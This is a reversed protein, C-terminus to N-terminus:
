GNGNEKGNEAARKDEAKMTRLAAKEFGKAAACIDDIYVVRDPDVGSYRKFIKGGGGVAYLKMFDPDYGYQSLTDFIKVCYEHATKELVATYESTMDSTGRIFFDEIVEPQPCKGFYEMLINECMTLLVSVGLRVTVCKTEDVKKDRINMINITGNGIDAIMNTGVLDNMHSLVAPYGQPYVKCGVINLDFQRGCYEFILRKSRTLYDKLEGRQSKVYSVPLGAAICINGTYVKNVLCEAAIAAITLIYFDDDDTKSIIFAKRSEGIKYYKGDFILLDGPFAPKDPYERLATPFHTKATKMNGYGMDVGVIKTGKYDIM